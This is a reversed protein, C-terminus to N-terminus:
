WQHACAFPLMPSWATQAKQTERINLPLALMGEGGTCLGGLFCGWLLLLSSCWLFPM